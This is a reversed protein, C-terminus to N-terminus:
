QAQLAFNIQDSTFGRQALFRYAKAKLALDQTLDLLNFKKQVLEHAFSYWDIDLIDMAHQATTDDIGKQKLEYRIKIPGYRQSRDRSFIEAFRQDSQWGRHNMEDLLQELYEFEDTKESLKRFLEFRSHERRSLRDLLAARLSSRDLLKNKSLNM